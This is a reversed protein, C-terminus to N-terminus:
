TKARSFLQWVFGASTEPLTWVAENERVRVPEDTTFRVGKERLRAMWAHVDDVELAIHEVRGEGEGLRKARAQADPIEILEVRAGESSYFATKVGDPLPPPELALDLGMVDRVFEGTRELSAVVVGVHHVRPKM